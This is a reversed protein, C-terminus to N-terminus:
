RPCSIFKSAPLNKALTSFRRPVTRRPSERVGLVPRRGFPRPRKQERVLIFCIRSHVTTYWPLPAFRPDLSSRLDSCGAPDNGPDTVRSMQPSRSSENLFQLLSQPSYTDKFHNRPVVTCLCLPSTGLGLLWLLKSPARGRGAPRRCPSSRTQILDSQDAVAASAVMGYGRRRIEPKQVVCAAAGMDLVSTGSSISAFFPNIGIMLCRFFAARRHKTRTRLM